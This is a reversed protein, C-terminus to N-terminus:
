FYKCRNVDALFYWAITLQQKYLFIFLKM